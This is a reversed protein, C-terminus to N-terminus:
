LFLFPSIEELIELIEKLSFFSTNFKFVADSDSSRIVVSKM